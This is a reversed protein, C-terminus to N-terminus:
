VAKRAQRIVGHMWAYQSVHAPNPFQDAMGRAAEGKLSEQLLVRVRNGPLDEVLWACHANIIVEEANRVQGLWSLRAPQNIGPAVYEKVTAAVPTGGFTFGFAYDPALVLPNGATGALNDIPEFSAHWTAPNSLVKWVQAANLGAVITENSIFCDTTAPLYDEPWNIDHM